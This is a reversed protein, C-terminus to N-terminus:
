DLVDATTNVNDYSFSESNIVSQGSAKVTCSQVIILLSGAVMMFALVLALIRKLNNKM